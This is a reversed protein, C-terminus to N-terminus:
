LIAFPQLVQDFVPITKTSHLFLHQGHRFLVCTGSTYTENCARDWTATHKGDTDTICSNISLWGNLGFYEKHLQWCHFMSIATTVRHVYTYIISYDEDEWTKNIYHPPLYLVPM